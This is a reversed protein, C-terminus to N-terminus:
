AAATPRKRARTWRPPSSTNGGQVMFTPIVRHFITGDYHGADVYRLFNEVSAPARAPDLTIVFTGRSTVVEVVPDPM